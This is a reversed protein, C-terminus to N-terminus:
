NTKALSWATGPRRPRGTVLTNLVRAYYAPLFPLAFGARVWTRYPLRDRYVDRWLGLYFTWSRARLYRREDAWQEPSRRAHETVYGDGDIFELLQRVAAAADGYESSFGSSSAEVQWRFTGHQTFVVSHDLALKIVLADDAHIARAFDPYGGCARIAATGGVTTVMSQFGYRGESWARFFDVAFLQEPRPPSSTLLAGSPTVTEHRPIAVSADAHRELLEVSEAALTPSIEDDDCLLMFYKGHAEAILENWHQVANEARSSRLRYPRAYASELIPRLREGDGGSDSVLLDIEPYTQAQVSEVARALFETRVHVPISITLTPRTM